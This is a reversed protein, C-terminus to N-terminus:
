RSWTKTTSTTTLLGVHLRHSCIDNIWWSTCSHFKAGNSFSALIFPKMLPVVKNQHDRLHMICGFTIHIMEDLFTNKKEMISSQSIM